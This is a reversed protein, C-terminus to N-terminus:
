RHSSNLRTSKRDPFPNMARRATAVVPEMRAGPRAEIRYIDAPDLNAVTTFTRLFYIYGDRSWAPWHVHMGNQPPILQRPNTGDADAILLADGAASGPRIFVIQKGDASWRMGNGTGVDLVRRAVGPLPAPVEWTSFASDSGRPRAAVAIRSGDPAVDLGGISTGLGIDLGSAATLNIAEGGAIFKVWVNGPGGADSLYAVWKGDPSIVPAVERATGSTLRVVRAFSPAEPGRRSALAAGGIAAAGIGALAGLALPLAWSRYGSTNTAPQQRASAEDGDLDHAADGIDRLRRRPDKQLCRDLLSRVATPTEAPLKTWDPTRELIAAIADSMTEGDFARRGTLMEYLVCGFAWIDARKDVPKGRAQEPSMYPATGLLVGDVTPAIVTPSHTLEFGGAAASEAKALGFDLVKVSGDATLAVNAPKLDRHVIGREHAADLADVIQRAIGLSEAIPMGRTRSGPASRLRDALTEGAVLEMVIFATPSTELGYIQAIHPHNLSALLRAEREFRALREADVVFAAPLVKVAVDRGLRTDHARYVEGMGGAGIPSVIEYAGLRSGPALPL